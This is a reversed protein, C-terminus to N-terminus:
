QIVTAKEGIVLSSALVSQANTISDRLVEVLRAANLLLDHVDSMARFYIYEPSAKCRGQDDRPVANLMATALPSTGRFDVTKELLTEVTGLLTKGDVDEEFIANIRKIAAEVEERPNM